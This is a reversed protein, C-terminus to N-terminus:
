ARVDVAYHRIFTDLNSWTAAACIDPLLVGDLFAVSVAMARTSHVKVHQPRPVRALDYELYITATIWRSLRQSSVAQGTKPGSYCVFLSEEQNHFNTCNLYFLLARKVDLSHLKREEESTPSPYFDPLIIDSSPHFNSVVKPLFRIDPRLCVSHPLFLLYPQVCRLAALESVRRASTIAVLFSTKWMLLRIDCTAMPEFPRGTLERLVLSLNWAPPPPRTLPYLNRLGWLFAKSSPHSFVTKQDILPHYASIASLYVRLSSHSLDASHRDTLFDFITGLSSSSLM